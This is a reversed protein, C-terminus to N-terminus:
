ERKMGQPLEAKVEQWMTEILGELEQVRKDLQHNVFEREIKETVLADINAQMRALEVDHSLKLLEVHDDKAKIIQGAQLLAKRLETM